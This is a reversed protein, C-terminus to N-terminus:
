FLESNYKTKVFILFLILSLFILLSNGIYDHALSFNKREQLVLETILYIRFINIITITIYGVIIWQIKHYVTSPFALISSLFFLYPLVGNCAKEVVLSYHPTIIIEDGKIINFPLTFKILYLTFNTQLSNIFNAISSIDWYFIASLWVINFWYLFLFRKM